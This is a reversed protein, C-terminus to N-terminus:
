VVRVNMMMGQDEHNLIHCHLVFRGPFEKAFRSRVKVYGRRPVNVTDAWIRREPAIREVTGDAHRIEVIQFPNVHIHYPHDQEALNEITWEEVNGRPVEIDFHHDYPAPGFRGGQDDRYGIQFRDPTGRPGDVLFQVTRKPTRAVEADSIPRLYASRSAPLRLPLAPPTAASGSVAIRALEVEANNRPNPFGQGPEDCSAFVASSARLLRGELTPSAPAQILIDARNGPALVLGGHPDVPRPPGTLTIGDWAVLWLRFGGHFLLPQYGNRTGSASVLRWRQIERPRMAITPLHVGNITFLPDPLDAGVPRPGETEPERHLAEALMLTIDTVGPLIRQDPPERVILSGFQGQQVNYATSGHRHAHYWHTGPAHDKPLQYRYTLEHDFHTPGSPMLPDNKPWVELFVNDSKGSPSVHLGHTHVNTTNKCNPVTNMPVPCEKPDNPPHQNVFRIELEQGPWVEIQSGIADSGYSRAQFRYLGDPAPVTREVATSELTLSLRPDPSGVVRLNPLEQYFISADLVEMREGEEGTASLLRLGSGDRREAREQAPLRGAVALGAVSAVGAALFRRRDPRTGGMRTVPSDDARPRAAVSESGDAAAPPQPSKKM